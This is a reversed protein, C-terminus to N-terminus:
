FGEIIEYVEEDTVFPCQLHIEDAKNPLKLLCDGKGKLKEAGNHGLINRSDMGSTTQLAFRCGINAKIAGTVVDVTPRQTAIILHIGCARGLQAIKVIFKEVVGKSVMMLDGLEEIVVVEKFYDDPMKRWGNKEMISYRADLTDCMDKLLEIAQIPDTAVSCYREGLRKYPSLEVRKTDIMTFNINYNHQKLLSCIISNIMVSKGSGTTGAVLIHPIENLNLTFPNNNDDVGALIKFSGDFVSEFSKDQLRVGSTEKKPISLAFHAIDSKNYVIELNLFSSITKAYKAVQTLNTIHGVDYHFTTYNPSEQKKKLFVPVGLEYFLNKIEQEM